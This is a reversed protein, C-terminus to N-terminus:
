VACTHEDWLWAQRRHMQQDQQELWVCTLDSFAVCRSCNSVHPHVSWIMERQELHREDVAVAQRVHHRRAAVKGAAHAGDEDVRVTRMDKYCSKRQKHTSGPVLTCGAGALGVLRFM